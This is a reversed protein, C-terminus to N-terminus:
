IVNLLTEQNQFILLVELKKNELFAQTIKTYIRLRSMMTTVEIFSTSILSNERKTLIIKKLLTYFDWRKSM